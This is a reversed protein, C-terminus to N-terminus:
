SHVHSRCTAKLPLYRMRHARSRTSEESKYGTGKRLIERGAGIIANIGTSYRSKGDSVRV